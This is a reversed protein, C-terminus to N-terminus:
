EAPSPVLAPWGPVGADREVGLTNLLGSVVRYTLALAPLAVLQAENWLEAMAAWTSDSVCDDAYLDDTMQLVLAEREGWSGQDIPRTVDAIEEASLGVSRGLLTHQGFEYVSQANWGMRLIVLERLRPEVNEPDFFVALLQRVASNM